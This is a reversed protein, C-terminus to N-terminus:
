FARPALWAGLARVDADWRGALRKSRMAAAPHILPFLVRSGVARPRGATQLVPPASPDVARLAHAGLTVLARPALLDLQRDLYPRCTAAAARDFRNDPPRCKLVNLVGFEPEALGVQAIARDLRVGSRGVFPRGVEDEKRGPAEGVFVVTPTRSGRYVVAHTRSVGLPCRRCSEIEATLATWPDAPGRPDPLGGAAAPEVPTLSGVWDVGWFIPHTRVRHSRRARPARKEAPIAPGVKFVLVKHSPGEM